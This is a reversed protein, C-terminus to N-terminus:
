ALPGGCLVGCVWLQHGALGLAAKLEALDSSIQPNSSARSFTYLMQQQARAGAKELRTIEAPVAWADADQLASVAYGVVTLTPRSRGSTVTVKEGAPGLRRSGAAAALTITTAAYPGAAQTVGKLGRTRALEADTVKSADIMVALDPVRRKALAREFSLNSNTALTLGLVGSAAAV